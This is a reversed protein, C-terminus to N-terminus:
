RGGQLRNVREELVKLDDHLEAFREGVWKSQMTCRMQMEGLTSKVAWWASIGAVLLSFGTLVLGMPMLTRESLVMEGVPTESQAVAVGGCVCVVFGAALLWMPRM